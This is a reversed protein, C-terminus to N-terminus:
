DIVAIKSEFLRLGERLVCAMVYLEVESWEPAYHEGEPTVSPLNCGWFLKDYVDDAEEYEDRYDQAIAYSRMIDDFLNWINLFDACDLQDDPKELWVKLQDFDYPESEELKLEIDLPATAALCCPFDRFVPIKDRDDILVGDADNNYWVLVRHAGGLFFHLPYYTKM